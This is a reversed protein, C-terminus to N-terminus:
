GLTYEKWNLLFPAAGHGYTYSKCEYYYNPPVLFSLQKMDYVGNPVGSSWTLGKLQLSAGARAINVEPPTVTDCLITIDSEGDITAATGIVNFQWSTSVSLWKGSTNQYIEDIATGAPTYVKTIGQITDAGHTVTEAAHSLLKTDSTLYQKSFKDEIVSNEYDATYAIRDVSDVSNQNTGVLKRKPVIVMPKPM